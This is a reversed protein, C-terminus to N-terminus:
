PAQDFIIVGQHRRNNCWLNGAWLIKAFDADTMAESRKMPEVEVNRDKHVFFGMSDTDLMYLLEDGAGAATDTCLADVIWPCGKYTANMFGLDLLKNDTFQMKSMGTTGEYYAYVDPHSVIVKPRGAAGVINLWMELMHTHLESYDNHSTQYENSWNGSAEDANYEIQGLTGQGNQTCILNLGNFTASISNANYIFLNERLYKALTKKAIEMKAKVLNVIQTTGMNQIKEAGHITFYTHLFVWDYEAAQIQDENVGGSAAFSTATSPVYYGGPAQAFAVPCYYKYGGDLVVKSGKTDLFKFFPNADIIADGLKNKMKDLTTAAINTIRASSAAAM